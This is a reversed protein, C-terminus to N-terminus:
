DKAEAESRGDGDYRYPRDVFAELTGHELFSTLCPILLAALPRSVQMMLRPNGILLVDQKPDPHLRIICNMDYRDKFESYRVPEAPESSFAVFAKRVRRAQKSGLHMRVLQDNEEARGNPGLWIASETALSSEQISCEAQQADLFEGIAFGRPNIKWSIVPPTAGGEQTTDPVSDPVSDSASGPM